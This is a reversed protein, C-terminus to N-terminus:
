LALLPTSYRPPASPVTTNIQPRSIPPRSLEFKRLQRLDGFIYLIICVQVCFIDTFPKDFRVFLVFGTSVGHLSTLVFTLGLWIGPLALLRLWRDRGNLFNVILPAISGLLILCCGGVIGCMSRSSGMNAYAAVVMRALSEKLMKQVEIAVEAFVTPDPHPSGFNSTHFPSLIDSSINLEYPSSRNPTFFTQKARAYFLALSSSNPWTIHYSTSSPSTSSKHPGFQLAWQNYKATYEKLWLIFYSHHFEFKSSRRLLALQPFV